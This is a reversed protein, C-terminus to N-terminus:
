YNTFSSLTRTQGYLNDQRGRFVLTYFRKQDPVFGNLQFLLNTTGTERVFLTDTQKSTYPIFSTVSAPSVNSFVNTNM